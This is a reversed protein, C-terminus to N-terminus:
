RVDRTADHGALAPRQLVPRPIHDEVMTDDFLFAGNDCIYSQGSVCFRCRGCAPVFSSSVHDGVQVSRVGEGVAVVEGAGEHGGILPFFEPEPIGAEAMAAVMEPGPVSDGTFLHDDSHCIGAVKIKVLIEGRGPPDLDIDRVQWEQGVGDLVAARVHM